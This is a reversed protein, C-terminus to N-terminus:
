DKPFTKSNDVIWDKPLEIDGSRIQEWEKPTVEAILQTFPMEESPNLKFVDISETAISTRNVILIRAEKPDDDYFWIVKEIAPDSEFYIDKLKIMLAETVTETSIEGTSIMEKLSLIQNQQNDLQTQYNKIKQLLQSFYENRYEVSKEFDGKRYFNEWGGRRGQFEAGPPFDTLIDIPLNPYLDKLYEFADIGMYTAESHTQFVEDLVVARINNNKVTDALDFINKPPVIHIVVVDINSQVDDIFDTATEIDDEVLLITPKDSM